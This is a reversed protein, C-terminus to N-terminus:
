KLGVILGIIASIISGIIIINKVRNRKKSKKLSNNLNNISDQKEILVKNYVNLQKIRLSDLTNYNNVVKTLNNVQKSYEENEKLLKSHELFIINTKKLQIPTIIILSDEVNKVKLTDQSFCMITPVLSMLLVFITKKINM